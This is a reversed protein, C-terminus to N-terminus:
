LYPDEGNGSDGRPLDRITIAPSIPLRHLHSFHEDENVHMYRIPRGLPTNNPGGVSQGLARRERKQKMVSGRYRQENEPLTYSATCQDRLHDAKGCKFCENSGAADTGPTLPFPRSLSAFSNPGWKKYFECVAAKYREINEPSQAVPMQSTPEVNELGLSNQTYQPQQYTPISQYSAARNVFTSNRDTFQRELRALQAKMSANESERDVMSKISDVETPTLSEVKLCIKSVSTSSNTAVLLNRTYPGINQMVLFVNNNDPDQGARQNAVAMKRAWLVHEMEGTATKRGVEQDQLRSTSIHVFAAQRDEMSNDFRAKLLPLLRSWDGRAEDSVSAGYYWQYAVSGEILNVKFFKAQKANNEEYDLLLM